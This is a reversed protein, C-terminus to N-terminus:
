RPATPSRSRTSIPSRRTPTNAAPSVRDYGLRQRGDPDRRRRRLVAAASGAISRVDVEYLGGPTGSAARAALRYTGASLYQIMLPDGFGYSNDDSRLLNGASDTLTLYGDLESSTMIMAVVGDSPLTFEYFDVPGGNAGRCSATASSRCMAAMSISRSCPQARAPDRARHVTSTMQYFGPGSRAARLSRTRRRGAPRASLHTAGLGQADETM